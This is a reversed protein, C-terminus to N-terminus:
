KDLILTTLARGIELPPPLADTKGYIEELESNSLQPIVGANILDQSIKQAVQNHTSRRRTDNAKIMRQLVEIRHTGGESDSYLQDHSAQRQSEVCNIYKGLAAKTEQSLGDPTVATKTYNYCYDIVMSNVHLESGLLRRKQVKNRLDEGLTSLRQAIDPPLPNKEKFQRFINDFEESELLGKAFDVVGMTEKSPLESVDMQYICYLTNSQM